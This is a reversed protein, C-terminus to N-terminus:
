EKFEEQGELPNVLLWAFAELTAAWLRPGSVLTTMSTM